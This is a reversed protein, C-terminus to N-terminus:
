FSSEIQYILTVTAYDYSPKSKMTLISGRFLSQFIEIAWVMCHVPKSPITRITCIPFTKKKPKPLCDYCRSHKWYIPYSQGAWGSTGAEFLPIKLPGCIQNLYSRAEENDLALIVADFQAFYQLPFKHRNM